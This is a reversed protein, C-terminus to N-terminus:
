PHLLLGTAALEERFQEKLAPLRERLSVELYCGEGRLLEEPADLWMAIKRAHEYKGNAALYLTNEIYYLPVGDSSLHWKVLHALEPWYKVAWEIDLPGTVGDFNGRVTFSNEKNAVHGRDYEVIIDFRGGAGKFDRSATFHQAEWLGEATPVRVLLGDVGLMNHPQALLFHSSILFNNHSM